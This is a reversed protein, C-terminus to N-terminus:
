ALQLHTLPVAGSGGTWPELAIPLVRAIAKALILCVGGAGWLSALAAGVSLDLDKATAVGADGAAPTAAGGRASIM